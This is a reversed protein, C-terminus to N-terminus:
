HSDPIDNKQEWKTVFYLVITILMITFNGLWTLPLFGNILWVAWLGYLRVGASVFLGTARWQPKDKLLGITLITGSLLFIIGVIAIGTSSSIIQVLASPAVNNSVYEVLPSVLYIGGVITQVAIIWQISKIPNYIIKSVFRLRSMYRNYTM